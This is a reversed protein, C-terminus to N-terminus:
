DPDIDVGQERLVNDLAAVTRLLADIKAEGAEVRGELRKVRGLLRSRQQALGKFVQIGGRRIKRPM